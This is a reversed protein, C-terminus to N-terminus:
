RPAMSVGSPADMLDIRVQDNTQSTTLILKRNPLSVLASRQLQADEYIKTGNNFVELHFTRKCDTWDKPIPPLLLTGSTFAGNAPVTLMLTVPTTQAIPVKKQVSLTVPLMLSPLPANKDKRDAVLEGTLAVTERDNSMQLRLNRAGNIGLAQADLSMSPQNGLHLEQGTATKLALDVLTHGPRARVECQVPCTADRSGTPFAANFTATLSKTELHLAEDTVTLMASLSNDPPKEVVVSTTQQESLKGNIAALHVTYRRAKPFSVITEFNESHDTIVEYPREDGYDLFVTQANEVKGVLKFTAPAFSGTSVPIANFAVIKPPIPAAPTNPNVHIPVSRESEDGFANHLALKVTYDGARQYAHVVTQDTETKLLPSGDGFDWLGSGNNSLNHFKVEVGEDATVEFNAVPKEPKVATNVLPTVYMMVAGGLLGGITGLITKFWSKPKAPAAEEKDTKDAV